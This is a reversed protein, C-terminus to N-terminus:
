APPGAPSPPGALNPPGAVAASVGTHPSHLLVLLQDRFTPSLPLTSALLTCTMSPPPPCCHTPLFHLSSPPPLPHLPLPPPIRTFCHRLDHRPDVCRPHLLVVCCVSHPAPPLSPSLPSLVDSAATTANTLHPHPSPHTPPASLFHRRWSPGTSLPPPTVCDSDTLNLGIQPTVQREGECGRWGGEM